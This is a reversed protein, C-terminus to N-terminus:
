YELLIITLISLLFQFITQREEKEIKKEVFIVIFEQFLVVLFISFNYTAAFDCQLKVVLQIVKGQCLFVALFAFCM